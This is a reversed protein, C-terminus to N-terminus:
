NRVKPTTTQSIYPTGQFSMTLAVDLQSGDLLTGTLQGSFTSGLTSGSLSLDTGIFKLYSDDDISTQMGHSFSGGSITLTSDYQLGAFLSDSTRGNQTLSAFTGGTISGTEPSRVTTGLDLVAALGAGIGGMGGQFTGGSISFNGQLVAGSGGFAASSGNGGRFKGGSIIADAPSLRPDAESVFANGGDGGPVLAHGNGGQFSGGGIVATGGEM